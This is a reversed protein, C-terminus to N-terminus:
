AGIRILIKMEDRSDRLRDFGAVVAEDLSAVSTVLQDVRIFGRSILEMSRAIDEPEYVRSGVISLEKMAATAADFAIPHHPLGGLLLTGGPRAAAMATAFGEEIGTLEFTVDFKAAVNDATLEGNVSFGLGAILAQRRANPEAVTLDELGSARLTEAVLIGIPGGGVILIKSSPTAGSRRVMHAAVSLPETLAFAKPDANEPLAVLSTLPVVVSEALGGDKDIGFLGLRECIHTLGLACTDCDGCSILPNIFVLQGLEFGLRSKDTELGVSPVPLESLRAVFEHGLVVPPKVRAFRGAAISLDTGCIGVYIPAVRVQGAVLEPEPLDVLKMEGSPQYQLARM